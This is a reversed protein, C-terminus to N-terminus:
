EGWCQTCLPLRMPLVLNYNGLISSTNWWRQLGWQPSIIFERSILLFWLGGKGFHADELCVYQFSYFIYISIHIFYTYVLKLIQEWLHKELWFYLSIKFKSYLVPLLWENDINLALCMHVDMDLLDSLGKKCQAMCM